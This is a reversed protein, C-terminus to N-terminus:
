SRNWFLCKGPVVSEQIIHFSTVPRNLCTHPDALCNLREELVWVILVVNADSFYFSHLHRRQRSHCARRQARAACLLGILKVLTPEFVGRGSPKLCWKLLSSWYGDRWLRCRRRTQQRWLLVKYICSRRVYGQYSTSLETSSSSSARSARRSATPATLYALAAKWCRETSAAPQGRDMVTVRWAAVIKTSSRRTQLFFHAWM